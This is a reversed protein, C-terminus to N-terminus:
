ITPNLYDRVANKLTAEENLDLYVTWSYIKVAQAVGDVMHQIFVKKDTGNGCVVVKIIEIM